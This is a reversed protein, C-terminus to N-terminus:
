RSKGTVVGSTDIITCFAFAPPTSPATMLDRNEFDGEPSVAEISALVRDVVRGDRGFPLLLREFHVIRGARDRMDAITYVPERAAVTEHFTSLAADRYAAPLVDDLFRDQGGASCSAAFYETIRIGGFRILFRTTGDQNVVDTFLLNASIDALEEGSLGDWAPLRSTGRLRIWSKLLWLQNISRVIDPPSIVFEVLEGEGV